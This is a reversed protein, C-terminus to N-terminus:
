WVWFDTNKCSKLHNFQESDVKVTYQLSDVEISQCDSMFVNM